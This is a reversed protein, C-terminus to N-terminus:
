AKMEIKDKIIKSLLDNFENLNIIIDGENEKIEKALIFDDNDDYDLDFQM